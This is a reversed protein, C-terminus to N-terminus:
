EREKEILKIEIEFQWSIFYKAVNKDIMHLLSQAQGLFKPVGIWTLVVSLDGFNRIESSADPDVLLIRSNLLNRMMSIDGRSKPRGMVVIKFHGEASM